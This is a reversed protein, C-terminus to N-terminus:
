CIGFSIYPVVLFRLTDRLAGVSGSYVWPNRSVRLLRFSVVTYGLFGKTIMPVM